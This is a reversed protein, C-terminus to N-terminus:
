AGAKPNLEAALEAISATYIVLGNEEHTATTM